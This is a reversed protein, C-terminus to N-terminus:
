ALFAEHAIQGHTFDTLLYGDLLIIQKEIRQINFIKCKMGGKAEQSKSV